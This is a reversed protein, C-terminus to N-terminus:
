KVAFGRIRPCFALSRTYQRLITSSRRPNASGTNDGQSVKLRARRRSCIQDFMESAETITCTEQAHPDVQLEYGVESNTRQRVRPINHAHSVFRIATNQEVGPMENAAVGVHRQQPRYRRIGYNVELKGISGQPGSPICCVFICDQISLHRALTLKRDSPFKSVPQTPQSFNACHRLKAM